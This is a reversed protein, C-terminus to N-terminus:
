KLSLRSFVVNVNNLDRNGISIAVKPESFTVSGVIHRRKATFLIKYM